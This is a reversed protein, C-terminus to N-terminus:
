EGAGFIAKLFSILGFIFLIVGGRAGFAARRGALFWSAGIFMMLIGFGIGAARPMQEQRPQRPRPRESPPVENSERQELQPPPAPQLEEARAAFDDTLAQENSSAFGSQVVDGGPVTLIARCDPCYIEQGVLEDKVRLERGCTQCSFSIPMM